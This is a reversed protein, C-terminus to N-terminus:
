ADHGYWEWFRRLQAGLARRRPSDSIELLRMTAWLIAFLAWVIVLVLFLAVGENDEM